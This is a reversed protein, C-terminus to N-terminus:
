PQEHGCAHPPWWASPGSTVHRLALRWRGCWNLDVALPEVDVRAAAALVQDGLVRLALKVSLRRGLSVPARSLHGLILYFPVVPLGVLLPAKRAGELAAVPRGALTETRSTVSMPEM